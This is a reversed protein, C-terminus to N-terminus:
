VWTTQLLLWDEEEEEEEKQKKKKSVPKRQIARATRSSVTYVLSAKFESIRKDRGGLYLSKLRPGGDGQVVLTRSWQAMEDGVTFPKVTSYVKARIGAEWCALLIPAFLDHIAVESAICRLLRIEKDAAEQELKRQKTQNKLVPNRQTARATNSSV